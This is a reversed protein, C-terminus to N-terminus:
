QVEVEIESSTATPAPQAPHPKPKNLAHTYYAWIGWGAGLTALLALVLIRLLAGTMPRVESAVARRPKQTFTPGFAM